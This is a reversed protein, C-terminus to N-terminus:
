YTELEMYMSLCTYGEGNCDPTALVITERIWGVRLLKYGEGLNIDSNM